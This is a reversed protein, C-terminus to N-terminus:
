TRANSCKIEMGIRTTRQMCSWGTYVYADRAYFLVCVTFSYTDAQTEELMTSVITQLSHWKGIVAKSKGFGEEDKNDSSM